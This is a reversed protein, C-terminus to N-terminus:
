HNKIKEYQKCHSFWKEVTPDTIGWSRWQFEIKFKEPGTHFWKGHPPGCLTVTSEPDSVQYRTSRSTSEPEYEDSWAEEEDEEDEEEDEDIALM